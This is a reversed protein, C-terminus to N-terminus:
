IFEFVYVYTDLLIWAENFGDSLAFTINYERVFSTLCFYRSYIERIPLTYVINVVAINLYVTWLQSVLPSDIGSREEM